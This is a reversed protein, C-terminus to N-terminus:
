KTSTAKKADDLLAQVEDSVWKGVVNDKCGSWYHAAHAHLCKIGAPNRIGAVGRTVAFASEWKREQIYKWDDQTIVERREQGYQDHASRMSDLSTSDTQLRKEFHRITGESSQKADDQTQQQQALELKSIIARFRPHTVWYMTPFPEVLPNKKSDSVPSQGPHSLNNHEDEQRQQRKRHSKTSDSENRLVLPYLQIAMPEDDGDDGDDGNDRQNDSLSPFYDKQRAAVKIANGPLYGLQRILAHKDKDSLQCLDKVAPWQYGRDQPIISNVFASSVKGVAAEAAATEIAVIKRRRLRAIRGLSKKKTKKVETKSDDLPRESSLSKELSSSAEAMKMFHLCPSTNTLKQLIERHRGHSLAVIPRILIHFRVDNIEEASMMMKTCSAPHTHHYVYLVFSSIVSMCFIFFSRLKCLIFVITM